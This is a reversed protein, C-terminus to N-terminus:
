AWAEASASPARLVAESEGAHGGGLFGRDIKLGEHLFHHAHCPNFKPPATLPCSRASAIESLSHIVQLDATIMEQRIFTQKHAV